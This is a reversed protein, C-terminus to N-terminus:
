GADDSAVGVVECGQRIEAGRERAAADIADEVNPQYMSIHSRFGSVDTGSWDLFLLAEGEPNRFYYEDNDSSEALAVDIDGAAQVIRTAEADLNVLRPLGYLAPYRELVVVRHGRRALLSSVALGTPGYGVVAVDYVAPEPVVPESM